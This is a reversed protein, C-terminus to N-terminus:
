KAGLLALAARVRPLPDPVGTMGALRDRADTLAARVEALVAAPDAVGELANVCQVIRAANAETTPDNGEVDTYGVVHAVADTGKSSAIRFALVGGDREDVAAWPGPTHGTM